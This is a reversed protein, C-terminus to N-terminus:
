YVDVDPVIHVASFGKKNHIITIAALIHYKINQITSKDKPLKIM